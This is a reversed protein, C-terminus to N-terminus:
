TKAHQRGALDHDLRQCRPLRGGGGLSASACLDPEVFQDPTLEVERDKVMERANSLVAKTLSVPLDGPGVIGLIEERPLFAARAGRDDISRHPLQFGRAPHVIARAHDHRGKKRLIKQNVPTPALSVEHLV